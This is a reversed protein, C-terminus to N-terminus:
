RSRRPPQGAEALDEVEIRARDVGGADGVQDLALESDDSPACERARDDRDPWADRIRGVKGMSMPGIRAVVSAEVM